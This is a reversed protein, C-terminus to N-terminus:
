FKKNIKYVWNREVCVVSGSQTDVPISMEINYIVGYIIVISIRVIRDTAKECSGRWPQIHKSPCTHHSWLFCKISFYQNVAFSFSQSIAVIYSTGSKFVTWVCHWKEQWSPVFYVYSGIYCIIQMPASPWIKFAPFNVLQHKSSVVSFFLLEPLTNIILFTQNM